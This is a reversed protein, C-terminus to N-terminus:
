NKLPNLIGNIKSINDASYEDGSDEHQSKVESIISIKLYHKESLYEKIKDYKIRKTYPMISM